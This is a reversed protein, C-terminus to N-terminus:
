PTRSLLKLESKSTEGDTTWKLGATYNCTAIIDVPMKM